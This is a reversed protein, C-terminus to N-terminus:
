NFPQPRVPEFFDRFEQRDRAVHQASLQGALLAYEEPRGGHAMRVLLRESATFPLPPAVTSPAEAEQEALSKSGIALEKGNRHRPHNSRSWAVVAVEASIAPSTRVEAARLPMRKTNARPAAPSVTATRARNLSEPGSRHSWGFVALLLALVGASTAALYMRRAYMNHGFSLWGSKQRLSRTEVNRLVRHQLDPPPGTRNLGKLVRTIAEDPDSM